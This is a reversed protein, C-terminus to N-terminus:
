SGLQRSPIASGKRPGILDDLCRGGRAFLGGMNGLSQQHDVRARARAPEDVQLGLASAVDASDVRLESQGDAPPVFNAAKKGLERVTGLFVNIADDEGLIVVARLTVSIPNDPPLVMVARRQPDPLVFGSPMSEYLPDFELGLQVFAVQNLWRYSPWQINSQVFELVLRLVKRQGDNLEREDNMIYRHRM